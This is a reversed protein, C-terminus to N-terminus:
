VTAPKKFEVEAVIGSVLFPEPLPIWETIDNSQKPKVGEACAVTIHPVANDVPLAKPPEVKVAAIGANGEIFLSGFAIVKLTVVSGIMALVSPNKSQRMCITMHHAKIEWGTMRKHERVGTANIVRERDPENLIVGTYSITM